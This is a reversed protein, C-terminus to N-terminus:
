KGEYDTKEIKETKWITLKNGCKKKKKILREIRFNIINM